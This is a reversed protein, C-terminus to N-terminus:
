AYYSPAILLEGIADLQDENFLQRDTQWNEQHTRRFENFTKRVLPSIPSRDSIFYSLATLLSPLPKTIMHPESLIYASGKLILAHREKLGIENKINVKMKLLNRTLEEIEKISFLKSDIQFLTLAIGHSSERIHILDNEILKIVHSKFFEKTSGQNSFLSFNNQLLLQILELCFKCTKVPIDIGRQNIFEWITETLVHVDKLSAGKSLFLYVLGKKIDTIIQVNESQLLSLIEILFEPLIKWFDSLDPLSASFMFFQCISRMFKQYEDLNQNNKLFNSKIKFSDILESRKGPNLLSILALLKCSEAAIMTYEHSCLHILNSFLIQEDITKTNDNANIMLNGIGGRYVEFIMKIGLVIKGIENAKFSEEFFVFLEKLVFSKWMLPEDIASAWIESNEIALSSWSKKLLNIVRQRSTNLDDGGFEFNCILASITEALARQHGLGLKFKTKAKEDGDFTEEVLDLFIEIEDPGLFNIWRGLNLFNMYDFHLTGGSEETENLCLNKLYESIFIIFEDFEKESWKKIPKRPEDSCTRLKGSRKIDLGSLDRYKWYKLDILRVHGFLAVKFCNQSLNRIAKVKSLTLKSLSPFIEPCHVLEILPHASLLALYQTTWSENSNVAVEVLDLILKKVEPKTKENADRVDPVFSISFSDLTSNLIEFSDNIELAVPMESLKILGRLFRDIFKFNDCIVDSFQNRLMFCVGKFETESLNVSSEVIELTKNIYFESKSSYKTAFSKLYNQSSARIMHYKKFSAKFLKDALEDFNPMLEREFECNGLNFRLDRRLKFQAEAKKIWFSVPREKDRLFRDYNINLRKLSKLKARSLDPHVPDGTILFGICDVYHIELELHEFSEILGSLNNLMECNIVLLRITEKAVSACSIESNLEYNYSSFFNYVNLLFVNLNDIIEILCFMEEIEAKSTKNKSSNLKQVLIQTWNMISKILELALNGDSESPLACFYDFNRKLDEAKVWKGWNKFPNEDEKLEIEKERIDFHILGILISRFILSSAVFSKRNSISNLLKLCFEQLSKFNKLIYVKGTELLRSLIILNKNLANNSQDKSGLQGSGRELQFNIKSIIQPVLRDYLSQFRFKCLNSIIEGIIEFVISGLDEDLLELWKELCITGIEESVKSYVCNGIALILRSLDEHEKDSNSHSSQSITRLYAILKETFNLLVDPLQSTLEKAEQCSDSWELCNFNRESVNVIRSGEAFSLFLSLTRISKLQDNSDIGFVVTPLLSLIVGIGLESKTFNLLNPITVHFLGIASTTRHPESISQLATSISIFLKPILLNPRINILYNCTFASVCMGSLAPGSRSFVLLESLNWINEVVEDIIELPVTKLWKEDINSQKSILGALYGLFLEIQITWPGFNTPHCLNRLSRLFFMLKPHILTKYNDTQMSYIIWKSIFPSVDKGLIEFFESGLEVDIKVILKNNFKGAGKLPSPIKLASPLIREFVLNSWSDWNFTKLTDRHNKCLKKLMFVIFVDFQSSIRRFNKIPEIVKDFIRDLQASSLNEFPLFIAIYRIARLAEKPYFPLLDGEFETLVEEVACNM